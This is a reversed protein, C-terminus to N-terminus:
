CGRKLKKEWAYPPCLTYSLAFSKEMKVWVELRLKGDDSSDSFEASPLYPALNCYQDLYRHLSVEASEKTEAYVDLRRRISHLIHVYRLLVM